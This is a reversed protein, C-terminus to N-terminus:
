TEWSRSEINVFAFKLVVFGAMPHSIAATHGEGFSHLLSSGSGAELFVECYRTCHMCAIM